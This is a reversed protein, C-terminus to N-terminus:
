GADIDLSGQHDDGESLLLICNIGIKLEENKQVLVHWSSGWDSAKIFLIQM